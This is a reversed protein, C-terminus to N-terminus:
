APPAVQPNGGIWVGSVIATATGTGYLRARVYRKGGRYGVKKSAAATITIAAETGLLNADDVATFTSTTSSDSEYVIPTITDAASASAGTTYVFEVSDFGRRDAVSSLKGGAAGTTGVAAPTVFGLISINNHMDKSSM